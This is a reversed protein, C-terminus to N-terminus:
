VAMLVIRSLRSQVQGWCDPAAKRSNPKLCGRLAEGTHATLKGSEVEMIYRPDQGSAQYHFGSVEGSEHAVRVIKGHAQAGHSSWKVQDGVKFTAM